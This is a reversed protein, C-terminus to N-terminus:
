FTKKKFILSRILKQEEENPIECKSRKLQKWIMIRKSEIQNKIGVLTQFILYKENENVFLHEDIFTIRKGIDELNNDLHLMLYVNKSYIEVLQESDVECSLNLFHHLKIDILKLTMNQALVHSIEILKSHFESLYKKTYSNNLWDFLCNDINQEFVLEDTTSQMGDDSNEKSDIDIEIRASKEGNVIYIEQIKTCINQIDNISSSFQEYNLISLHELYRYIKREIMQELEHLVTQLEVCSQIRAFAKCNTIIGSLRRIIDIVVALCSQLEVKIFDFLISNYENKYNYLINIFNLLLQESTRQKGNLFENIDRNVIAYTNSDFNINLNINAYKQIIKLMQKRRNKLKDLICNLSSCIPVDKMRELIKACMLVYYDYDQLSVNNNDNIMLRLKWFQKEKCFRQNAVVLQLNDYIQNIDSKLFHCFNESHLLVNFTNIGLEEFTHHKIHIFTHVLDKVTSLMISHCETNKMDSSHEVSLKM